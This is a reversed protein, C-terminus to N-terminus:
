RFCIFITFNTKRVFVSRGLACDQRYRASQVHSLTINLSIWTETEPTQDHNRPRDGVRDGIETGFTYKWKGREFFTYRLLKSAGGVGEAM